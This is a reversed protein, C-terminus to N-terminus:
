RKVSPDAWKLCNKRGLLMLVAFLIIICTYTAYGRNCSGTEYTAEPEIDIDGSALKRAKPTEDTEALASLGLAL